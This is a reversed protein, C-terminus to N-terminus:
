SADEGVVVGVDIGAGEDGAGVVCVSGQTARAVLGVGPRLQAAAPGQDAAVHSEGGRVTVGECLVQVLEFLGQRYAVAHRGVLLM